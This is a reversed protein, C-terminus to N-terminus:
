GGNVAPAYTRCPQGRLSPCPPLDAPTDKTTPVVSLVLKSARKGGRGIENMVQGNTAPTEFAWAVRDGGPAEVSVRIRSGKRFVHSASYFEVRVPVFEGAPLPAADAQLHTQVPHTKTSQAEDLKRHSARLYGSQVYTEKGDPRIESLTVQIDSDTASSRLWLDVSGPGVVTVPKKLPPTAYAVATGDVLPLWEYPPIVAWASGSPLSSMPRAAPDPRYSDVKKGHPRNHVLKGHAGFFFTTPKAEKPPWQSFGREFRAVPIGPVDSGAGDEMRVTVFPRSEFQTRAADLTTVGDYADTPIPVMPSDNGLIQQTLISAFPTMRSPDPVRGAVYIDLFAIWDWVVELDFPSTHVGNQVTVKVDPRVPFRSLMSAFDPGTQEDQFSASYFMPVQIKDVWTAPSREDMLAPTYFPTAKTQVVPDLQQLRMKQNALCVADGGTVRQRAWSQGGTPAPKADDGRETLWSQAFGNNFIGGPYGPARYIDGITSLPAVAALHPPQSGGVFTQTIGSFSLGVMGVKHNLVWPQAAVAEVVDYGDATTQYDFIGFIGGSCGSGRMNVGVVAYGLAWTLLESPQSPQAGPAAPDYGSYEVLTPFPGDAMTKGLPPYVTAALLTGDRMQIYQYGATLTQADYFSQAPHDQFRLITADTPTGGAEQVTYTTGQELFPFLLSGFADVQASGLAGRQPHTLTWTEGPTANMISLYGVNPQVVPTPAGGARALAAPLVLLVFLLRSRVIDARRM